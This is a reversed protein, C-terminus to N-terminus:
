RDGVERESIATEAFGPEFIRPLSAGREVTNISVDSAGLELRLRERWPWDPRARCCYLNFTALGIEPYTHCALHSETLLFLGTVGGPPPFKHWHGEGVVCLDLEAIIQACLRRMAYMDSLLQPSCGSADVM